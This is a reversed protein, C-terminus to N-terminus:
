FAVDADSSMLEMSSEGKHHVHSAIALAGGQIFRFVLGYYGKQTGRTTM